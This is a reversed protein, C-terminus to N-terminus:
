TRQRGPYHSMVRIARAARVRKRPVRTVIGSAAQPSPDLLLQVGVAMASCFTPTISRKGPEPLVAPVVALVVVVAGGVAVAVGGASSVIALVVGGGSADM